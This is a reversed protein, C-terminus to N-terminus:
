DELNLVAFHPLVTFGLRRWIRAVHPDYIQAVVATAEIENRLAHHLTAYLDRKLWSGRVDPRAVAHCELITDYLTTFWVLAELEGEREVEILWSQALESEPWEHPHYTAM